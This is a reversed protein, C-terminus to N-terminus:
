GVRRRAQFYIMAITVAGFAGLSLGITLERPLPFRTITHHLSCLLGAVLLFIILGKSGALEDRIIVALLSYFVIYAPAMLRENNYGFFTSIIVLTLYVVLYKRTRFFSRTTELFVLPVLSLPIISNVLLRFWTEPLLLKDWYETIARLLNNGQDSHLMSRLVIASAIAPLAAFLLPRWANRLVKMEFLFVVAVPIMIMPTERTMSGLFLVVGFWTWKQSTMTWMLLVIEIQSLIDDLHFYNWIPFGFLYKNLVFLITSVAAIAPEVMTSKLYLYFILSLMVGCTVSLLRFSEDTSMPLMGALFPGLIRFIFPQRVSDTLSPVAQAMARYDHLDWTAYDPNRYDISGYAYTM